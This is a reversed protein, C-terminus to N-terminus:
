ERNDHYWDAAKEGRHQDVFLCVVIAILFLFACFLVSQQLGFEAQLLGLGIIGFVGAIKNSLGWFGFFEASKQEPSFLGVLARSASQSSGLSLGAIIGIYLFVYQAEFETSFTLNIWDTIDTVAWIGLVGLFWLLLTINYTTKAGIRDQLFGFSFAGIAATIQVVVFMLVRVTENWKVVQDGYIFAFSIVIYIGAMAFFVSILFIALDRFEGIEKMTDGLRKFGMSVFTEGAPLEKRAGPEKVWLFTPIATLMFFLAAYPGVWRIREFNEATADGLYVIVFGAAVLGGIYGLAWGFGSIKGLDRPPGLSPLFSAIFNEGISYAFNSIIILIVGLVVLGPEVFYLLATAFITLLYSYFLFKKKLASYDMIAGFIPGSLVVLFYSVSLAISWLLNGLRFDNDADGVIVTTFLVPFIVTIILLTYAQNAFDFMAWGFIEKNSARPTEKRARRM